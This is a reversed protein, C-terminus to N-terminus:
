IHCADHVEEGDAVPLTLAQTTRLARVVNAIQIRLEETFPYISGKRSNCDKCSPKLNSRVHSGGKSLPHVHDWQVVGLTDECIWCTNNFEELIEALVKASIKEVDDTYKAARKQSRRAKNLAVRYKSTKSLGHKTMTAKAVERHLCGCSTTNGNQVSYNPLWVSNGCTCDYKQYCRNRGDPRARLEYQSTAVLRGFTTGAQILRPKTRGNFSTVSM